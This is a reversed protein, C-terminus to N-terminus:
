NVGNAQLYGYLGASAADPSGLASRLPEVSLGLEAACAEGLGPALDGFGCLVLKEPKRPLEDEAYAMTPFLVSMVEDVTAESLEMCRLLRLRSGESLTVTLVRGGLKATAVLPEAAVLSIAALASTTVFGPVFGAGRFAAEYRAVIELAAAAAVVYWRGDYQRAHFGISATDMEFPVTKKMRFRVLAMQEEHASPFQDFDLVAIRTSYDPLIVAADRTRRVGGNAALQAVAHEFVEPQAVNEQVPSVTLVGEALPSFGTELRAGKEPLRRAWAIGQQSVEFIYPPPPDELLKRLYEFV